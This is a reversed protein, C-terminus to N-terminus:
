TLSLSETSRSTQVVPVTSEFRAAGFIDRAGWQLTRTQSWSVNVGWEHSDHIDMAFLKGTRGFGTAIKDCILLVVHEDCLERVRKLYLTCHPSYFACGERVRFVIIVAAIEDSHDELQQIGNQPDSVGM